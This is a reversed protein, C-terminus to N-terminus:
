IPFPVAIFFLNKIVKKEYQNRPMTSISCSQFLLQKWDLLRLIMM